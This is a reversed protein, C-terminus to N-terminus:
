ITVPIKNKLKALARSHQKRIASHKKGLMNAIEKLSYGYWYYMKIIKQSTDDLLKLQDYLEGYITKDVDQKAVINDPLETLRSQYSIKRKAMNDCCKYIWSTPYEVYDQKQAIDCLHVFFDQAVEVAIYEGYDPLLFIVIRKYYFSYIENLAFKNSNIQKLLKNFKKAEVKEGLIM